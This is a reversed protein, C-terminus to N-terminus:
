LKDVALVDRVIHEAMAMSSTAGPSPANRIHVVRGNRHIVFDDVMDGSKQMAQARIGRVGAQLKADRLSPVYQTAQRAFSTKSLVTKLERLAASGNRAAFKWFGPYRLFDAMDALNFRRGSYNERGLSIFANPGIMLAGDVRKTFHVGLFPYRPDPVPYILGKVHDRLKPDVLYYQGFFPVIRPDAEDGSTRALRDSQLGACAVVLDFPLDDLPGSDSEVYVGDSRENLRVVAHGLRLKAGSEQIEAAISHAIAGYSVIATRASHLAKIGVCNPEIERMEEPGILRIDAVGNAAANRHIAELRPLEEAELAVVLKGCEDYPLDRAGCYDRLLQAGRICFRAKLGGPTYYLGAHVVGSNHSSQHRAVEAEKEFVTVDLDPHDLLFQRAVCLGNMGAGIIAIRRVVM